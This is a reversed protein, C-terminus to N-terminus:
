PAMASQRLLDDFTREIHRVDTERQAMGHLQKLKPSFSPDTLVRGIDAAVNRSNTIIPWFGTCRGSLVCM